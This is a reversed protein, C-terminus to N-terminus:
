GNDARRAGLRHRGPNKPAPWSSWARIVNCTPNRWECLHKWEPHDAPGAYQHGQRWSIGLDLLAGTLPETVQEAADAFNAEVLRVREGFRALRRATEALADPDRDVGILRAERGRELIAEAHGGGELVVLVLAVAPRRTVELEFIDLIAARARLDFEFFPFVGFPAYSITRNVQRVLLHTVRAVGVLGKMDLARKEGVGPLAACELDIFPGGRERQHGGALVSSPVIVCAKGQMALETRFSVKDDYSLPFKIAHRGACVPDPASVIKTNDNGSSSWNHSKYDGLEWDSIFFVPNAAVTAPNCMVGILAATAATSRVSCSLKRM